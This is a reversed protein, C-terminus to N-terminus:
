ITRLMAALIAAREPLSSILVYEDLAHGGDGDAGMGDLTPVGLAATFNGDSGGGTGAETIQIGMEGALSQAKDFLAIIEPKREMPPRNMGGSVELKTRPNHVKLRRMKNEVREYEEMTKVRVDIEAWAEAPVVNSRTGGNVVGVNFTSGTEYDTMDQVALIQRALEEIANAGKEHDAGAHTAWGTVSIRYQGVGKRWTKLSGHPPVPPELVFVVDHDLAEREIIPRSTPSGIEEDATFLITIRKEPFMDMANLTRIAWLGIVIGGKMDDAGPGFLKGEEIRVPREAITGEDWVTDMHCLILAGGGGTGWRALVHNGMEPQEVVEVTAGLGSAENALFGSFKDLLPKNDSPSEMEVIRKLLGVMDDEYERLYELIQQNKTKNM